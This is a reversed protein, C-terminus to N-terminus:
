SKFSAQDIGRRRQLEKQIERLRLRVNDLQFDWKNAPVKRIYDIYEKNASLLEQVLEADPIQFLNM